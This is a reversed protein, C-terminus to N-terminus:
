FVRKSVIYQYFTQELEIETNKLKNTKVYYQADEFSKFRKDGKYFDVVNSEYNNSYSKVEQKVVWPKKSLEDKKQFFLLRWDNLYKKMKTFIEEAESLPFNVLTDEQFNGEYYIMQKGKNDKENSFKKLKEVAELILPKLYPDKIRETQEIQTM